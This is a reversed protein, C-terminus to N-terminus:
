EKHPIKSCLQFWNELVGIVLSIIACILLFWIVNSRFSDWAKGAAEGMKNAADKAFDNLQDGASKDDGAVNM